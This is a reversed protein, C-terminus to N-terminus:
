HSTDQLKSAIVADFDLDGARVVGKRFPLPYLDPTSTEGVRHVIVKLAHHPNGQPDNPNPVWYDGFGVVQGTGALTRLQDLENRVAEENAPAIRLYLYGRQPPEYMGSSMPVPVEFVGSIRVLRGSSGMEFAVDDIRAYIGVGTGKAILTAGAFSLISIAAIWSSVFKVTEGQQRLESVGRAFDIDTAAERFPTKFEPGIQCNLDSIGTTSSFNRKPFCNSM